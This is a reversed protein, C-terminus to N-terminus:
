CDILLSEIIRPLKDLPVKSIDCVKRLIKAICNDICVVFEAAKFKFEIVPRM